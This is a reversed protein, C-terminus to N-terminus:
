DTARRVTLKSVAKKCLGARSLGNNISHVPAGPSRCFASPPDTVTFSYRVASAGLSARNEALVPTFRECPLACALYQAAYSLNPTSINETGCFAVRSTDIDRSVHRGGRRQRGRRRRAACARQPASPGFSGNTLEGGDFSTNRLPENAWSTPQGISAIDTSRFFTAPFRSIM